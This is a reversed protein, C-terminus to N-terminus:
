RIELNFIVKNEEFNRSYDIVTVKYIRGNCEALINRANVSASSKCNQKKYNM